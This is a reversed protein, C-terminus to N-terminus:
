ADANSAAHVPAGVKPPPPPPDPSRIIVLSPSEVPPTLTETKKASSSAMSITYRALYPGEGVLSPFMIEFTVQLTAGSTTTSRSAVVEPLGFTIVPKLGTPLNKFTWTVLAHEVVGTSSPLTVDLNQPNVQLVKGTAPGLADVLNVEIEYTNM